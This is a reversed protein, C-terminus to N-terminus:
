LLPVVAHHLCESSVNPRISDTSYLKENIFTVSLFLQCTLNSKAYRTFHFKHNTKFLYKVSIGDFEVLRSSCLLAPNVFTPTRNLLVPPVGDKALSDILVFFVM